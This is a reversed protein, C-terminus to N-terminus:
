LRVEGLMEAEVLAVAVVGAPFGGDVVVVGRVDGHDAVLLRGSWLSVLRAAPDHLARDAPQGFAAADEDPPLLLGGVVEAEELDGAGQEPETAEVAQRM